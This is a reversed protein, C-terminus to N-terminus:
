VYWKIVFCEIEQFLKLRILACKEYSILLCLVEELNQVRRKGWKGKHHHKRHLLPVLSAIIIREWKVLEDGHHSCRQCSQLHLLTIVGTTQSLKCQLRNKILCSGHTLVSLLNVRLCFVFRSCFRMIWWSYHLFGVFCMVLNVILSSSLCKLIDPNTVM